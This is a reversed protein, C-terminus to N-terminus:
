PRSERDYADRKIRALQIAEDRLEVARPIHSIASNVTWIWLRPLCYLIKVANLLALDHPWDRAGDGHYRGSHIRYQLVSSALQSWQMAFLNLILCRFLLFSITWYIIDIRTM